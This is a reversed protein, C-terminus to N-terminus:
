DPFSLTRVVFGGLNWQLEEISGGADSNSKRDSSHPVCIIIGLPNLLDKKNLNELFLVILQKKHWLM